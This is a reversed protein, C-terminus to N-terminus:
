RITHIYSRVNLYKTNMWYKVYRRFSAGKALIVMLFLLVGTLNSLVIIGKTM